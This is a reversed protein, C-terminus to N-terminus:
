PTSRFLTSFRMMLAPIDFGAPWQCGPQADERSEALPIGLSTVAQIDLHFLETDSKGESQHFVHHELGVPSILFIAVLHAEPEKGLLELPPM